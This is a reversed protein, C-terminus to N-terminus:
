PTKLEFSFAGSGRYSYVEWRYRGAPANWSITENATPGLSSAVVYWYSGSWKYLYLDFDVGSPGTLCGKQLGAPSDYAAYQRTAGTGSLNGQSLTGGCNPGPSPSPTPDPSPSPTPVPVADADPGPRPHRRRAALLAAQEALGRGPRGVAGSTAQSTLYSTVQAPTASPNSQLYVAAAGAVHPTAMSTGSITNTATNSGIWSSTINQGPAFIDVCTGINSFSARADTNTTAGVTIANPTRAPSFGCADANSNGAAIAYTVGDAISRTVADDVAQSAGGGLSM